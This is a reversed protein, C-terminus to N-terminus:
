RNAYGAAPEGADRRRFANMNDRFVPALNEAIRCNIQDAGLFHRHRAIHEDDVCFVSVRKGADSKDDIQAVTSAPNEACWLALFILILAASLFAAM